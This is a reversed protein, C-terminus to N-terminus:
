EGQPYEVEVKFFRMTTSTDLREVEEDPIETWGGEGSLLSETGSYSYTRDDKRPSVSLGIQGGEVEISVRLVEGRDLPHTGAVFEDWNGAGDGDPDGDAPLEEPALGYGEAWEAYRSDDPPDGRYLVFCGEPVAAGDLVNGEQWAGPVSLRALGAGVFAGDEIERVGDSIRLIELEERGAVAESGIAVVPHGELMPPVALRTVGEPVGTVTANGEGDVEFAWRGGYVVTCGSPVGARSLISSGKWSAPVCMTWLSSCEEFVSSDISKVSAPLSLAVLGTCRYFALQGISTLGDPFDVSALAPCLGFAYSGISELTSSLSVERLLSCGDFANSEIRKVGEPLVVAELKRCYRFANAAIEEVGAPVEYAGGRGGPFALLSKADKDFLVGDISSFAPNGADVRFEALADCYTLADRGIETLSAGFSLSNLAHCGFFAVDEIVSVSDSFEFSTLEMCYSVGGTRITEVGDPLVYAGSKGCPFEVLSKMDKTFIM